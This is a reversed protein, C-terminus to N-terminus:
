PMSMAADQGLRATKAMWRAVKNGNRALDNGGKGGMVRLTLHDIGAFRSSHPEQFSSVGIVGDFLPLFPL